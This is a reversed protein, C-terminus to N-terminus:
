KSDDAQNIAKIRRRTIEATLDRVTDVEVWGGHVPVSDVRLGSDIVAQLLDTMYAKEVPKGRLNEAVKAHQFTEILATAGRVFSTTQIKPDM